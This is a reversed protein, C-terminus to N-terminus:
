GKVVVMPKLRAIKRSIGLEDVVRVVEDIDKYAEPAEEALSKWSGAKVEIGKKNLEEKVKEGRINRLASSRSAIRGAGHVTSGFTLEEAKKTGALVYSSTGMSGPILVPQGVQRYDEPIEKRGAGFARTAGKRHVCVIQKKGDITHEEFKAINHCVDYVVDIKIKPFLNKLEERVWHTILQKNAFAFNAACAMASFYDKGLQSNIPANILERDPLDKFGYKDEMKKIYDSAVQHGLGRSGCNGTVFGDAIFNHDKHSVTLDYVYGKYNKIEEKIKIADWIIPTPPNFKFSDVFDAFPTIENTRFDHSTIFLQSELKKTLISEEKLSNKQFNLYQSAYASLIERDQCYEYGVKSWLKILNEKKSSIKLKLKVTKKNKKTIVGTHETIRMSEVGFERLLKRIQGLFKYGNSKLKEQKNISLLPNRFRYQENKPNSPKNLEAGFFGALYLRKIWLPSKFIWNPIDFEKKSKNGFPAGLAFFLVPLATSTIVLQYSTGEIIRKEGNTYTVSSKAYGEYPGSAKYGLKAIDKKIKDLDKPMGIFKMAWRDKNKGLWGDGTLFGLLKTLIPLKESNLKLPLLGKRKLRTITKENCGIKRIEKEDIIMEDIPEEYEIGEFPLVAIKENEKIKKMLKLGTPTLIPHDGTAILEKGSKTIIKFMGGHPKLKFFKIINTNELTHKQINMCKVNTERWKKELDKMKITYGDETLIKSDEPLCHIMITAQNKELGFIKATEKDFIEDVYQIELFHNGSGLTGLQGIGRKIAIDSVKGADAGKICGEEEMHLYDERVGLNLKEVMYKAGGELVKNLEQRSINFKSGRGLGSPIKRYIAEVIEKKKKEADEKKINTRLLRVSCNSVVIGNAIFNHNEDNITIDYVLNEHEIEEKKDIRDWVFGQEGYCNKEIFENFSIFCYAIRSGSKGYDGYYIAKDIFYKNSYKSELENIIENKKMGDIKMKRAKFMTEERFNLIKEKQKLWLIAANAFKRKKINYEYNIKSFFSILNENSAYIMLRIRTSKKDNVEDVRNKILINKVDFEELLASIQNVFNIGDLPNDKNLSYVLGYLNFKHNTLTKPSSLEAGFLSALFLRKYWKVSKMIWEPISYDQKAKNGYPTGLLNLLIALSSSNSHLSDEVREFEYKQYQTRIKHKRQKSFISSKFGIKEVDKKILELDEKKGYFGVQNNKGLSISGDGFIFGILKIIYPLKPNDSYLPLLGLRSLKNKIQIKSTCSRNLKDIDEEGILLKKEINEYEIGEFPYILIEEKEKVDKIEKMGNKTYFPHEETALIEQGSETKIKVIKDSHKKMFFSINSKDISIKEKNLLILSENNNKEFDKIKKWYGFESLIKSDGSLCNIDYGVGGPSIVGKEMDFAAVGGIPFGYGQHADALAISARLIGPLQAVNKVQELTKDQKINEILKESAYIVGPVLMKGEKPIEYINKSIKKLPM